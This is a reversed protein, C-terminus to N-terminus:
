QMGLVAKVEKHLASEGSGNSMSRVSLEMSAKLGSRGKFAKITNSSTVSYYAFPSKSPM